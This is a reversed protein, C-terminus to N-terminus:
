AVLRAARITLCPLLPSNKDTPDALVPEEDTLDEVRLGTIESRRCGGSAFATLLLAPDRLDILRNGACTALLQVLIDGTVAKKSKRQRPRSGNLTM